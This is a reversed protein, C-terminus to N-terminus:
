RFAQLMDQRFQLTTLFKHIDQAIPSDSLNAFLATAEALFSPPICSAHAQLHERIQWHLSYNNTSWLRQIDQLVYRSLEETWPDRYRTLVMVVDEAFSSMGSKQIIQCVFSQREEPTLFDLLQFRIEPSQNGSFHLFAQVWETNGQRQTALQWGQVLVDRWEHGNALQLLDAIEVSQSHQWFQLPTAAIMQQLWFARDGLKGSRSDGLRSHSKSEIGDQQMATDCTEPFRVDIAKVAGSERNLQLLPQIREIMRQCLRSDPLRALLDAALHRVDKSRDGLAKELFPEDAMSLGTRFTELFKSRDSASEQNWGSALLERALDPNHRRQDQLYLLRAASNGTEWDAETEVGIAYSWDPNQAALWRGRQGLVPLIVERLERQQRGLDLLDPLYFEPVRQGAQAAATLWEPLVSKCEGQLLRHLFSASRPSCRPLDALDCLREASLTLTEPLQGAKHYLAIMGAASLLASEASRHTSVDLRSLAEGLKGSTAPPTFPQRETGLLAASVLAQWPSDTWNM